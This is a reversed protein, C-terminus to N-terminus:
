RLVWKPLLVVPFDSESVAPPSLCKLRQALKISWRAELMSRSWPSGFAEDLHGIKTRLFGTQSGNIIGSM